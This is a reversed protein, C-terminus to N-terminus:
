QTTTGGTTSTTSTAPPVYMLTTISQSASGETATVTVQDLNATSTTEVDASWTVNPYERDSFDGTGGSTSPDQLLRLDNLKESALRQLLLADNAKSQSKVQSGIAGIVGVLAIAVIVTTVLVEVLTFGKQQRRMDIKAATARGDM